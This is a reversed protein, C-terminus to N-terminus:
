QIEGLARRVAARAHYARSLVTTYGAEVELYRRQQGLLDSLPFRGLDYAELMVDVNQRALDRVTSAYLEVAKWAERDLAEAAEVEARANRRRADLVMEARAREAAASAVAGQNRDFFPLKVQAGLTVTHFIGEIPVHMGRDNLGQQSFGFQMRTYSGNVAIDYRGEQRAEEAQADVLTVRALAERIDPREQVATTPAPRPPLSSRVLSELSDAIVLQADAPLGVLAKLEITAAELEGTALAADAEIRLAEVAALNAELKPVGGETVRRDLLDRMRRAAVLAESTVELTRRAALVRGAQERVAAALLRERDQVSRFVVDSARQAAEMRAPRRFLNLPWEVGVTTNMTSETGTEQSALLSPNPRLGAQTVQGSTVAIEARAARLEPASELAISVLREVTVQQAGAPLPSALMVAVAFLVSRLGATM